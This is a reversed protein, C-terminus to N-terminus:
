PKILYIRKSDRLTIWGRPLVPGRVFEGILEPSGATLIRDGKSLHGLVSSSPALSSTVDVGEEADVIFTLNTNGGGTLTTVISRSNRRSGMSDYASTKSRSIDLLKRKLEANELRLLVNDAFLQLSNNPSVSSASDEAIESELRVLLNRVIISIQERSGSMWFLPDRPDPTDTQNDIGRLVNRNWEGPEISADKSFIVTQVSADPQCARETMTYCDISPNLETDCSIDWMQIRDPNTGVTKQPIEVQCAFEIAFKSSTADRAFDEKVGRDDSSSVVSSSKKSFLAKMESKKMAGVIMEMNLRTALRIRELLSLNSDNKSPAATSKV